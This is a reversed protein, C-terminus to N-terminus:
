KGQKTTKTKPNKTYLFLKELDRRLKGWRHIVVENQMWVSLSVQFHQNSLDAQIGLKNCSEYKSAQESYTGISVQLDIM